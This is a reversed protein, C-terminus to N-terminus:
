EYIGKQAPVNGPDEADVCVAQYAALRRSYHDRVFLNLGCHSCVFPDTEVDETFGKCHVCQMRRATSGRHETQIAALPVGASTAENTAQGMLSETGALYVQMGMKADSLVRKIRPLAADYTPGEYFQAPALARLKDAYDTGRSIFVIHGTKMLEPTAVDLIAEAGQADAIFLHSRGTQPALTGWIPRSGISPPFEFKSM